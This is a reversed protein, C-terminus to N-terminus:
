TTSTTAARTRRTRLTRRSRSPSPAPAASTSCRRMPAASRGPSRAAKRTRRPASSYRAPPTRPSPSVPNLTQHEFALLTGYREGVVLDLDGDGDLDALAPASAVGVDISAFPNTAFAAFGTATKEYARLTGDSAGVVLDLDGDDDLDAFAPKSEYGVDIGAFPTTAFAAFGTATKEYALLTGNREGVVLDLDRDGDLDAFAPASFNGVDIGAFPNTAFAAFGTATKEFALLTGNREGLVLDLDGDGDLDAFAPASWTGVDIGAFPNTAFAAFGTATKELALLTGFLEGVVLDLDGDGDLDAFAPTSFDGVDIGAFPNTAVAAFPEVAFRPPLNTSGSM